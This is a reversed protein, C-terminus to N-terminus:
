IGDIDSDDSEGFIEKVDDELSYPIAPSESDSDNIDTKVDAFLKKTKYSSTGDFSDDSMYEDDSKDTDSTIENEDIDNGQTHSTKDIMEQDTVNMDLHDDTAPCNHECTGGNKHPNECDICKCNTKCSKHEKSCKCRRSGFNGKCSCGESTLFKVNERIKQM